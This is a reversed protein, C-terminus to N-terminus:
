GLEFSTVGYILPIEPQPALGKYMRATEFVPKLGVRRALDVASTNVVPVDWFIEPRSHNTASVMANLLEVAAQGTRAVLPGVKWGSRCPRITSFGTLKSGEFSAFSHHGEASLWNQWFQERRSAFVRDDLELLGACPRSIRNVIVDESVGESNPDRLIQLQKACVHGGYRINQWALAFGSKEYAAQQAPVGDLGIVRSGAHRMAAQWLAFGFGRGRLNPRVIYFGLFAFHKDYNIISICAVMEGNVFGGWFGDADVSAFCRGDQEGPNWGEAAAWNIAVSIEDASLVRTTYL